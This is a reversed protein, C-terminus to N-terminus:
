RLVGDAGPGTSTRGCAPCAIPEGDQVPRGDPHEVNRGTLADGDQVIRTTRYAVKGCPCKIPYRGGLASEEVIETFGADLLAARIVKTVSARLRKNIWQATLALRLHPEINGQGVPYEDDVTIGNRRRIAEKTADMVNQADRDDAFGEPSVMLYDAVGQTKVYTLKIM